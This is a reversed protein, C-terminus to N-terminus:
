PQRDDARGAQPTAVRPASGKRRARDRLDPDPLARTRHRPAGRPGLRPRARRAPALPRHCRQPRGPAPCALRRRLAGHAAAVGGAFWTPFGDPVVARVQELLQLGPTTGRVHGGAEVGQVIVADAGAAVAARVEEVSGSQHIWPKDSGRRPEGWFTVVADAES